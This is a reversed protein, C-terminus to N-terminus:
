RGSKYATSFVQTKFNTNPTLQDTHAGQGERM